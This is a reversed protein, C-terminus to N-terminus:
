PNIKTNKVLFVSKKPWLERKSTVTRTLNTVINDENEEDMPKTEM